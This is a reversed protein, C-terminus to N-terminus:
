TSQSAYRQCAVILSRAFQVPRESTLSGCLLEQAAVTLEGCAGSLLIVVTMPAVAAVTACAM